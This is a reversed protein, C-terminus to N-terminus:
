WTVNLRAGACQENEHKAHAYAVFPRTDVGAVDAHHGCNQPSDRLTNAIIRM